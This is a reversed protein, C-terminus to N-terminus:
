FAFLNHYLLRLVLYALASSINTRESKETTALGDNLGATCHSKPVDASDSIISIFPRNGHQFHNERREPPWNIKGM